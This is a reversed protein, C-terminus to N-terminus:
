IKSLRSEDGISRKTNFCHISELGYWFETTLHGFGGEYDTWNKNFNVLSNNKKRRYLLLGDEVM